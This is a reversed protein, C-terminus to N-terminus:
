YASHAVSKAPDTCGNGILVSKLNISELATDRTAMKISESIKRNQDVIESAFFPLYRGGFSEGSMHFARGKFQSFTSFFIQLFAYVDKAAEATTSVTPISSERYSYGVEVRSFPRGETHARYLMARRAPYQVSPQDLFIMNSRQNWGHPNWVTGNKTNPDTDINCPGPPLFPPNTFLSMARKEPMIRSNRSSFAGLEMLLGMASSGGPGGNIWMTVPDEDPSSRSEFFWFFLHKRGHPGVDIFGAYSKVTLDCFNPTEKIHVRHSSFSPLSFVTYESSSLSSLHRESSSASSADFKPADNWNGYLPRDISHQLVVGPGFSSVLSTHLLLVLALFTRAM